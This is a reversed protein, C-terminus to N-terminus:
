PKPTIFDGPTLQEKKGTDMMEFIKQQFSLYQARSIKGDANAGIKEFMAKTPGQIFAGPAASVPGMPDGSFEKSGVFGTSNKDLM